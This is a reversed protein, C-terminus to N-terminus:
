ATATRENRLMHSLGFTYRDLTGTRLLTFGWEFSQQVADAAGITDDNHM